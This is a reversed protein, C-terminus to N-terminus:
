GVTIGIISRYTAIRPFNQSAPLLADFGQPHPGHRRPETRGVPLVIAAVGNAEEGFVAFVEDPMAPACQLYESEMGGAGRNAHVRGAQAAEQVAVRDADFSIANPNM